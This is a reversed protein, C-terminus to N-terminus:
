IMSEIKIGSLVFIILASSYRKGIAWNNEQRITNNLIEEKPWIFKNNENMTLREWPEWVKPIEEKVKGLNHTHTYSLLPYGVSNGM